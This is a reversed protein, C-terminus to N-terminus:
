ADPIYVSMIELADLAAHISALEADDLGRMLESVRDARETRAQMVAAEGAVTVTVFCSRGDDPDPRREVLGHEELDAILRTVTPAAITEIRAVDGPRLPGKRLITSLASLQGHSLEGGQPRVRRNIRGIAVALRASADAPGLADSSAPRADAGGHIGAGGVGASTTDTRADLDQEIM